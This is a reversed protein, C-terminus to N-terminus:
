FGNLPNGNIQTSTKDIFDHISTDYSFRVELKTAEKSKLDSLQGREDFFSASALKSANTDLPETSLLSTQKIM